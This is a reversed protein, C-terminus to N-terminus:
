AANGWMVTLENLQCNEPNKEAENVLDMLEDVNFGDNMKVPSQQEPPENEVDHRRKKKEVDIQVPSFALDEESVDIEEEEQKIEELPAKEKEFFLTYIVLAAYYAGYVLLILSFVVKFSM